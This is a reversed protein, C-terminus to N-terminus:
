ASARGPKGPEGALSHLVHILDQMQGEEPFVGDPGEASMHTFPAEYLNELRVPGYAQIHKQLLNLFAIQLSSLSPHRLFFVAFRERVADEEMGVIARLEKELQPTSPYFDRLDALNVGANQTLVLSTLRDFDGETLGEGRRLKRLTPDTMFHPELVGRVRERYERM